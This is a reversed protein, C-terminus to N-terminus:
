QEHNNRLTLILEALEKVDVFPKSFVEFFSENFGGNRLKSKFQKPKLGTLQEGIKLSDLQTTQHEIMLTQIVDEVTM